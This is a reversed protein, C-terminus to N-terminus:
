DTDASKSAHHLEIKVRRRLRNELSTSLADMRETLWVATKQDATSFGVWLDGQELRLSVHCDPLLKADLDMQVQPNDAERGTWLTQVTEALHELRPADDLHDPQLAKWAEALGAGGALMFPNLPPREDEQQMPRFERDEEVRESGQSSTAPKAAAGQVGKAPSDRSSTQTKNREGELHGQSSPGSSPPLATSNAGEGMPPSAPPLATSYNLTGGDNRCYIGGVGRQFLPTPPIQEMGTHAATDVANDVHPSLKRPLRVESSLEVDKDKDREELQPGTQQLLETFRGADEDRWPAEGSNSPTLSPSYDPFTRRDTKNPGTVM